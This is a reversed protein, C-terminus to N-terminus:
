PSGDDTVSAKFGVAASDALRKEWIPEMWPGLLMMALMSLMQLKGIRVQVLSSGRGASARRFAASSVAPLDPMSSEAGRASSGSEQM